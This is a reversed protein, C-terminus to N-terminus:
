TTGIENLYLKFENMPIPTPGCNETIRSSVSVKLLCFFNKPFVPFGVVPPVLIVSSVAISIFLVKSFLTSAKLSICVLKKASIVKPKELIPGLKPTLYTKFVFVLSKDCM